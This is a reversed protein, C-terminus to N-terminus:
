FPIGEPDSEDDSEQSDFPEDSPISSTTKEGPASGLKAKDVKIIIKSQKQGDKEWRDQHIMGTITIERGKTMSSALAKAYNGAYSCDIYNPRKEWQDGNKKNENSAITFTVVCFGEKPYKVEAGKVLRGSLTLQNIDSAM